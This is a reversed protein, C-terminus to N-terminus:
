FRIEQSSGDYHVARASASAAEGAGHAFDVMVLSFERHAAMGPYHGHSPGITLVKTQDNWHIPITASLGKEYDYSTGDDEYLEFSADAGPYIRLELPAEPHQNTYESEPGM